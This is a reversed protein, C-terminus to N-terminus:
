KGILGGYIETLKAVYDQISLPRRANNSLKKLLGRNNLLTEIAAALQSPDGAGFLLGNKKHEIIEAIGPMDSGVVPCGAAQASYIVLPSNERWLSPVILADISSFIEGIKDNLFTGCFKIMPYGSSMKILNRTYEHSVDLEGYIKLEVPRKTLKKMAEVLVHAGKYEAISGIFGLRLIHDLSARKSGQIFDLNLGFPLFKIRQKELGNRTLLSSMIQTPIVVQDIFNIRQALFDRRRSIARIMPSYYRDFHVGKKIISIPLAILWRPLKQLVISM